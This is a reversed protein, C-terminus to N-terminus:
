FKLLAIPVDQRAFIELNGFAFTVYTILFLFLFPFCKSQALKGIGMWQTLRKVEM